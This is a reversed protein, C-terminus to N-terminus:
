PQRKEVITARSLENGKGIQNTLQYHGLAKAIM